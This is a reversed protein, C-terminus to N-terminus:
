GRVLFHNITEKLAQETYDSTVIAEGIDNLLILFLVGNKSKKDVKMNELMHDLTVDKHILTPLNAKELILRISDVKDQTLLGLRMSLDAAMLMGLGVAEGHLWDKYNLGTEIAHAFTHGFNLLARQGQEREDDAVVEAKNQCSREIAYQLCEDDRDRLSQM